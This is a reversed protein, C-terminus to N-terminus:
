IKGKHSDQEASEGKTCETGRMGNAVSTEGDDTTERRVGAHGM